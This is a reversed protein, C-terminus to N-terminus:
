ATAVVRSGCQASQCLDQWWTGHPPRQACCFDEHSMYVEGRVELVEPAGQLQQPVDAITRANATVNEGTAGDGRTAAQILVGKEYRLSLSLGDIKPEATYALPQKADLGLYSRISRDFDAVDGDDFANGLSLMPVVHQIKGFGSGVAAGVTDLQTAIEQLRPFATVLAQYRRKAADYDADSLIPTDDQHYAQDAAILQAQLQLLEEKAQEQSLGSPDHTQNQTVRPM